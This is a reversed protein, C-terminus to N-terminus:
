LRSATLLISLFLVNLIILKLAFNTQNLMMRTVMFLNVFDHLILVTHKLISVTLEVGAQM